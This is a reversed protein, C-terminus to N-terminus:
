GSPGVVYYSQTATTTSSSASTGTATVDFHFANFGVGSGLSFGGSPVATVGNAPNFRVTYTYTDGNTGAAVTVPVTVTPTTTNPVTNQIAIDIGREAVEFSNTTYMANAAMRVDLTSTSLSAIALITLVLLLILGVALAAGRERGPRHFRRHRPLKM